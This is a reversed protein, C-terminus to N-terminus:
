AKLALYHKIVNLLHTFFRNLDMLYNTGMQKTFHKDMAPSYLFLRIHFHVSEENPLNKCNHAHM